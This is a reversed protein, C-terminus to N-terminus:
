FKSDMADLPRLVEGVDHPLIQRVHHGGSLEQALAVCNDVFVDVYAAPQWTTPLLLDRLQLSTTVDQDNPRHGLFPCEPTVAEAEKDLPHTPPTLGGKIQHNALDAITETAASFIPPSNKWGM